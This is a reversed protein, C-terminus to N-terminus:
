HGEAKIEPWGERQYRRIREAIGEFKDAVRTMTDGKHFSVSFGGTEFQFLILGTHEDVPQTTFQDLYEDLLGDRMTGDNIRKEDSMASEETVM